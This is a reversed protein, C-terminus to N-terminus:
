NLPTASPTPTAQPRPRDAGPKPQGRHCTSCGVSPNDAAITQIKKLDSNIDLTMHIMDRAARKMDKDDKEWEGPVHCFDCRVGLARTFTGMINPIRGAQQGKLVQINKFVQEAPQNERGAIQKRIEAVVPNEQQQGPQAQPAAEAPQRNAQVMTGEQASVGTRAAAWAASLAVVLSLAAALKLRANTHGNM